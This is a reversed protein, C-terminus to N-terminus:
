KKVGEIIKIQEEKKFRFGKCIYGNSLSTYISKSNINLERSAIACSKFKKVFNWEKDYQCIPILRKSNKGTIMDDYYKLENERATIIRINDFSYSKYDDLRDISPRLKRDFGSKVWKEYISYFHVDSKIWESLELLTYDPLSMKRSKSSGRQSHYIECILGDITRKYKKTDENKCKRCLSELNDKAVRRYNFDSISKTENCKRCVKTKEM